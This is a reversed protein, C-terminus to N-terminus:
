AIGEFHVCHQVWFTAGQCYTTHNHTTKSCIKQSKGASNTTKHLKQQKIPM